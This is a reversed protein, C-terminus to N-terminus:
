KFWKLEKNLKRQTLDKLEEATRAKAEIVDPQELGDEIDNDEVYAEYASSGGLKALISESIIRLDWEHVLEKKYIVNDKIFVKEVGYLGAYKHGPAAKVCRYFVNVNSNKAM